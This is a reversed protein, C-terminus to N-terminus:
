SDDASDSRTEAPFVWVSGRPFEVLWEGPGQDRSGPDGSGQGQEAEYASRPMLASLAGDFDLRVQDPMVVERCARLALARGPDRGNRRRRMILKEAHVLFRLRDGPRHGALHPTVFELPGTRLRTTDGEPDAETVRGEFVNLIGLLRAAAVSAPHECVELPTGDQIIRGRSFVLMRDALELAEGMDHTVLLMSLGYESRVQRLIAYLERRLSVDLARAPEDLLLLRPRGILARAIAARQREGGSIESPRRGGLGGLRFSDLIEGIREERGQSVLNEAAFRLNERITMHPFLSDKQFVYGCGRRRAPWHIGRDSDFVIDEDIAISGEDPQVFGAISELTLTKGAGSPGFLVTVENGASFDISLEFPASDRRAPFLKRVRVSIEAM